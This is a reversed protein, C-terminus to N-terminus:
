SPDGAPFDVALMVGLIQLAHRETHAAMFLVSQYGDLPGLAPHDLVHERLAIGPKELFLGIGRRGEILRELSQTPTWQGLPMLQPPAEGLSPRGDVVIKASPNPVRSLVFEDMEYPDRELARKPRARLRPIVRKLFMEEVMALHEVIEAISWREPTAKFSWQSETLGQIARMVFECSQILYRSAKAEEDASLHDTATSRFEDTYM